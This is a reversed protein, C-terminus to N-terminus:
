RAYGTAPALARVRDARRATRTGAVVAWVALGASGAFLPSLAPNESLAIAPGALAFALGGICALATAIRGGDLAGSRAGTLALAALSLGVVPTSIAQLVTHLDALPTAAGHRLETAESAALLHPLSELAAFATGVAAIRGLVRLGPSWASALLSLSMALTLFGAMTLVHSLAWGASEFMGALGQEFELSSDVRPHLIGGLGILLGAAALGVAGAKSTSPKVSREQVQDSSHFTKYQFLTITALV